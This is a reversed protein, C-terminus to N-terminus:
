MAVDESQIPEDKGFDRSPEFFAMGLVAPGVRGVFMLAIIILKGPDSLGATIGRSLGVTGIASACEFMQDALPAAEVLTLAYLGAALTICYFLFNATAARLRNEPIVRGLFTVEERRRIVSMMVAWLATFSTTKIGGGTGSPSAGIMMVLTILFLSSMSLHGIPVTDFGVTTSATMVQFLSAMWREGAPLGAVAPEDVFFLVTGIVAIWLTSALIIKSTLTLWAKRGRLFDWADSLVIFGIAGLYSLGTLIVNLAVDGRYSEFSDDHLGFGATCFASISHFVASWGPQPTGHALFVFYLAVAGVAEIALTFGVVLRVFAVIQFGEPLSLATAGVRQRLPSLKGSLSLVTFSGITMYGLGGLQILLAIVGQGFGSYAGSTSVTVLGTTSIASTATFLHNLAGTGPLKQSIPLCLLLWGLLVYSAYGLIVLRIIDMRELRLVLRRWLTACYKKM